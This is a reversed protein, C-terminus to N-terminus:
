TLDRLYSLAREAQAVPSYYQNVFDRGAQAMSRREIPAIAQIREILEEADFSKIGLYHKNERPLIPLELGWYDFDLMIPVTNSYLAEWLRFSDWQVIFRHDNTKKNGLGDILRHWKKWARVPLSYVSNSQYPGQIRQYSFPKFEWYGGISLTYPSTNLKEHYASNFRGSTALHLMEQMPNRSADVVVEQDIEVQSQNIAGRLESSYDSRISHDVRFSQWIRAESQNARAFTQEISSMVEPIIGIPWPRVNKFRPELSISDSRLILSVRDLWGDRLWSHALPVGASRDFLITPVDRFRSNWVWPRCHYAFRWDVLAVDFEDSNIQPVLWNGNQLKWFNVNGIVEHGLKRLGYAMITLEPSYTDSLAYPLTFIKVKM